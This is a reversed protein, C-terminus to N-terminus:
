PLANKIWALSGGSTGGRRWPDTPTAQRVELGAPAAGTDPTFAFAKHVPLFDTYGLERYMRHAVRSRNTGLTVAQCGAAAARQEAAIVEDYTRIEM